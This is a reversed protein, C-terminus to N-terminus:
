LLSEPKSLDQGGIYLRRRCVDQPVDENDIVQEIIWNELVFDENSKANISFREGDLFVWM